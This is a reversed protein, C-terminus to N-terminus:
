PAAALETVSPARRTGTVRGRARLVPTPPSTWSAVNAANAPSSGSASVTGVRISAPNAQRLNVAAESGTPARISAPARDVDREATDRRNTLAV